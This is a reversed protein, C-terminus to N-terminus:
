FRRLRAGIGRFGPGRSKATAIEGGGEEEGGGSSSASGGASGGNIDAHDRSDNNEGNGDQDRVHPETANDQAEARRIFLTSVALDRIAISSGSM